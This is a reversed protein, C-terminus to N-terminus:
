CMLYDTHWPGKVSPCYMQSHELAKDLIDWPKETTNQILAVMSGLAVDSGSGLSAFGNPSELVFAGSEIEFLRGQLGVLLELLGLPNEKTGIGNAEMLKIVAPIFQKILYADPEGSTWAPVVLCHKM